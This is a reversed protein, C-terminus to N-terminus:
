MFQNVMSNLTTCSKNRCSLENQLTTIQQNKMNLEEQSLLPDAELKSIRQELRQSFLQAKYILEDLKILE